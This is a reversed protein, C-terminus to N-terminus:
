PKGQLVKEPFECFAKKLERLQKEQELQEQFSKVADLVPTLDSVESEVSKEEEIEEAYGEYKRLIAVTKKAESASFGNERFHDELARRKKAEAMKVDEVRAKTNAPFTVISGEGLDLEDLYRRVGLTRYEEETPNSKGVINYGISQGMAGKPAEKLLTYIDKGRQTSYLVGKAYLGKSDENLSEYYGVPTYDTAVLGMGGHQELIPIVKGAEKAKALSKLFAGPRIIDGYSDVNGFYALYGEFRKVGDESSAVAKFEAYDIQKVEYNSM